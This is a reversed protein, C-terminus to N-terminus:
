TEADIALALETTWARVDLAKAKGELVLAIAESKAIILDDVKEDAGNAQLWVATVNGRQGIRHLRDEAQVADGPTWPRDVLIATQAATLTIGVGGAKITSVLAKRYGGQFRDVIGQRADPNKGTIVECGLAEGIAHASELFETFVVIQNGQEIVEEALETAERVKAESSAKRVAGLFVLAAAGDILQAAAKRNFPKPKEPTGEVREAEAENWREEHEALSAEKSARFAVKAEALKAAYTRREDTTLDARRLVRTKEPLDLCESKLRRLMGDKTKRHLEDLHAAGTVDWRTWRTPRADCYRKEYASRNSAIPHRTALLLPFLNVPRGNKIPTGTLAFVGLAQEALALFKKTRAAKRNQAYHAEDAILTFPPVPDEFAAPCKAWSFYEIPWRVIEAERMWVARLSAPGVVITHEGILRAAVLAQRTKGLGMDDAVVMQGRELCRRVGEVQHAYLGELAEGTEFRQLWAVRRARDAEAAKRVRDAEGQLTEDLTWGESGLARYVEPLRARPVLWHKADRDWRRGAIQKIRAVASPDYPFAVALTRANLLRISRAPPASRSPAPPATAPAPTPAAQREALDRAAERLAEWGELHPNEDNSM